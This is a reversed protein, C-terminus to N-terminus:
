FKGFLFEEINPFSDISQLLHEIIPLGSEGSFVVPDRLAANPFGQFVSEWGNFPGMNIPALKILQEIFVIFKM